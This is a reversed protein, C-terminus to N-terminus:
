QRGSKFRYYVLSFPINRSNPFSLAQLQINWFNASHRSGILWANGRPWPGRPYCLSWSFHELWMPCHKSLMWPWRGVVPELTAVIRCPMSWSQQDLCHLPRISCLIEHMDVKQTHNHSIDGSMPGNNFLCVFLFIGDRAFKFQSCFSSFAQWKFYIEGCHGDDRGLHVTLLFQLFNIYQEWKNLNERSM